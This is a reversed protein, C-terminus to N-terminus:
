RVVQGGEVYVNKMLRDASKLKGTFTITEGSRGSLTEAADPPLQVIAQVTSKVGFQREVEGIDIRAKTGPKNGFLLDFNYASASRLVGEWEVQKGQYTGEFARNVDISGRGEGFVAECVEKCGPGGATVPVPTPEVDPESTREPKPKSKEAVHESWQRVEEDEPVQEQVKVAIKRAEDRKGAMYLMESELLRAEVPEVNEVAPVERVVQIAEDLRGDLKAQIARELVKEEERDGTLCSALQALRQTTDVLQPTSSIKEKKRWLIESDDITLDKFSMIARHIRMRRARTLFHRVADPMNGKVIIDRDFALDGVEIDQGGFFKVVGSFFGEKSLKLGLGLPNKFKVRFRTHFQLNKGEPTYMEVTVHNGVLDGGMRRNGVIGASRYDFKLQAAAEAWAFDVRKQHHLVAIIAFFFFVGAIVFTVVFEM